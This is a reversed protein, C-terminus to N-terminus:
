RNNVVLKPSASPAFRDSAAAKKAAEAADVKKTASAAVPKAHVYAAAISAAQLRIRPDAAYDNMVGLLFELPTTGTITGLTIPEDRRIALEPLAQVAKPKRGAGPRAGGRPM